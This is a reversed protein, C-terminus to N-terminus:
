HQCPLLHSIERVQLKSQIPTPMACPCTRAGVGRVDAWSRGPVVSYTQAGSLRDHVQGVDQAAKSPLCKALDHRRDIVSRTAFLSSHCHLARTAYLNLCSCHLTPRGQGRFTRQGDSAQRAPQRGRVPGSEAGVGSIQDRSPVAMGSPFSSHSPRVDM